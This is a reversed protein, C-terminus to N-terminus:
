EVLKTDIVFYKWRFDLMNTEEEGNKENLFLKKTIKVPSSSHTDNICKPDQDITESDNITSEASSQSLQTTSQGLSTFYTELSSVKCMMKKKRVAGINKEQKSLFRDDCATKMKKQRIRNAVSACTHSLYFLM